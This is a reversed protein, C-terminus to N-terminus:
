KDQASIYKAEIESVDDALDRLPRLQENIKDTIEQRQDATLSVNGNPYYFYGGGPSFEFGQNMYIGAQAYRISGRVDNFVERLEARRQESTANSHCRIANTTAGIALGGLAAFVLGNKYFNM